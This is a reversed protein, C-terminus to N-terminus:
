LIKTISKEHYPIIGVMGWVQAYDTDQVEVFFSDFRNRTTFNFTSDQEVDLDEESQIGYLSELIAQVDQSDSAFKLKNSESAQSVQIISGVPLVRMSELTYKGRNMQPLTEICAFQRQVVGFMRVSQSTSDYGIGKWSCSECYDFCLEFHNTNIQKDQQCSTCRYKKLSQNM